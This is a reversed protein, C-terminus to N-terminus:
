LSSITILLIDNYRKTSAMCIRPIQAAFCIAIVGHITTHIITIVPTLSTTLSCASLRPMCEKLLTSRAPVPTTSQTRATLQGWNIKTSMVIYNRKWGFKKIAKGKVRESEGGDYNEACDFFNVGVDYVAKM